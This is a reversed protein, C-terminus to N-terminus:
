RVADADRFVRTREADAPHDAVAIPLETLQTEGQRRRWDALREFLVVMQSPRVGNARLVAIAEQDAQREFDRAYAQQGLVAPVAALVSSFDGVVLGALGALLGAQVVTRMGHRHRVHGLEHALVGTIVDPTAVLLEALEDTLVMLGGPLAFANPGIKMRGSSRFHLTYAPREAAPYAREVAAAFARRIAAQQEAGLRSPSLGERDFSALAQEGVTQDVSAPIAAVVAHGAWPVGWQWIAGALMVCALLAWLVGRWSQMWRVVWPDRLGQSRAWADWGAGDAHSILGHQPLYMLRAGHRQREPWRLQRRPVRRSVGAGEILLDGGDIRLTVAQAVPRQGDFYETALTPHSTPFDNTSM